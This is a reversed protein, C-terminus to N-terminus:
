RVPANLLTEKTSCQISWKVGIIQVSQKIMQAMFHRKKDTLMSICTWRKGRKKKKTEIM